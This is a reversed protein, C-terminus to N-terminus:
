AENIPPKLVAAISALVAEIDRYDEHLHRVGAEQLAQLRAGVGIFGYGLAQSAKLDWPGDGLYVVHEFGPCAYRDRARQRAAEMIRQRDRDDDSTALLLDDAHLGSANLKFLAEDRWCGTAIAIGLGDLQRLRELFRDAGPVQSFTEPSAAYLRQMHWIVRRKVAAIEEESPLRGTLRRVAEQTVGLSSTYTYGNLNTDIRPGQVVEAIALAFVEQDYEFSQTLTGDIDLMVLDM